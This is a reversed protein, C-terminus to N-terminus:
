GKTWCSGKLGRKICERMGGQSYSSDRIYRTFAQRVPLQPLRLLLLGARKCSGAKSAIHERGADLPRLTKM